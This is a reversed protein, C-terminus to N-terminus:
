KKRKIFMKFSPGEVIKIEEELFVEWSAFSPNPTHPVLPTPASAFSTLNEKLGVFYKLVWLM